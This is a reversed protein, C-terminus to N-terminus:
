RPEFFSCAANIPSALCSRYQSGSGCRSRRNRGTSAPLRNLCTRRGGHTTRPRLACTTNAKKTAALLLIQNRPRGNSNLRSRRCSALGPGTFIYRTGGARAQHSATPGRRSRPTLRCQPLAGLKFVRLLTGQFQVVSPGRRPQVMCLASGSSQPPSRHPWLLQLIFDARAVCSYADPKHRLRWDQARALWPQKGRVGCSTLAATSVHMSHSAGSASGNNVAAASTSALESLRLAM